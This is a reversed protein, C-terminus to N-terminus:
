AVNNMAVYEDLRNEWLARFYVTGPAGATNQLTKMRKKTMKRDDFRHEMMLEVSKNGARPHIKPPAEFQTVDPTLVVDKLHLLLPFFKVYRSIPVISTWM